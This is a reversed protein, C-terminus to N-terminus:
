PPPSIRCEMQSRPRLIRAPCAPCLCVRRSRTEPDRPPGPHVRREAPRYGAATAPTSTVGGCQYSYRSRALPRAPAAMLARDLMTWDMADDFTKMKMEPTNAQEVQQWAKTMIDQYYTITEKRSFGRMKETVGNVLNTMMDQLGRRQEASTAMSMARLFDTEYARLDAPLPEAVKLKMPNQTVVTAAGRKIVAFLIMTLIKDMPQGMLIAAEVATLGRKIGNGEVSVKPPLYQLKRKRNGVISGYITLALFGGFGLCFLSICITNTNLGAPLATLLAGAPVLRAPFAAGFTYQSAVSANAAQWRYFVSGDPDIGLEPQDSGPWNQPTFYIPEDQNMGPPLHLTVTMDTRGTVYRSGFFNPKFQFSGYPEQKNVKQADAKFLM